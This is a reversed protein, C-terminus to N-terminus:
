QPIKEVILYAPLSGYRAASAAYRAAKATDAKTGKGEAYMLALRENVLALLPRPLRANQAVPEYYQIARSYNQNLYDGHYNMSGLYFRSWDDGQGAAKEREKLSPLFGDKYLPDNKFNMGSHAAEIWTLATQADKHVESGGSKEPVRPLFIMVRSYNEGLDGAIYHWFFADPYDIPGGNKTGLLSAYLSMGRSYGELSSQRYSERAKAGDERVGNGELYMSGLAANAFGSKLPQAADFYAKAKNYDKQGFYYFGLYANADKYGSKAASELLKVGDAARDAFEPSFAYIVGLEMVGRPNGASAVPELCRAAVEPSWPKHYLALGVVSDASIKGQTRLRGVAEVISDAKHQKVSATATRATKSRHSSFSNSRGFAPTSVVATLLTIILIAKKMINNFKLVLFM